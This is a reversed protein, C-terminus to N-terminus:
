IGPKNAINELTASITELKELALKVREDLESSYHSVVSELTERLQDVLLPATHCVDGVQKLVERIEALDRQMQDPM